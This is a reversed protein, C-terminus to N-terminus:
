GDSAYAPSRRDCQQKPFPGCRQRPCVRRVAPWSGPRDVGALPMCDDVSTHTFFCGGRLMRIGHFLHGILIIAQPHFRARHEQNKRKKKHTHNMHKTTAPKKKKADQCDIKEEKM